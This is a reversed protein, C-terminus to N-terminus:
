TEKNFKQAIMDIRKYVGKGYHEKLKPIIQDRFFARTLTMDDNMPDDYWLLGRVSCEERIEDRTMNLVPRFVNRYRQDPIGKSGAGAGRFLQILVTEIHDDKNHGIWIESDPHLRSLYELVFKFKLRANGEPGKGEDEVHVTQIYLKVGLQKTFERVFEKNEPTSQSKEPNDHDIFEVYCAAVNEVGFQDIAKVLALASDAGGSYMVIAAHRM